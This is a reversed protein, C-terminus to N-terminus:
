FLLRLARWYKKLMDWDKLQLLNRYLVKPKTYFRRYAKKLMQKMNEQGIRPNVYVLNDPMYFEYDEYPVNDRLGGDQRCLEELETGPYPIPLFFKAVHSALRLALEVTNWADDKTEGPLAIIWTTSCMIGNKITNQVADVNNQVTAEKHIIDLSKQNGSECGYGIQWCGAKKMLPLLEM